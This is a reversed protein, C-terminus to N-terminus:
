FKLSTSRATELEEIVTIIKNVAERNLSGRPRWVILEIEEYLEIDSLLNMNNM